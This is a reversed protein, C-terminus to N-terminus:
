LLFKTFDWSLAGSGQVYFSSSIFYFTMKRPRDNMLTLPTHSKYTYIVYYKSSFRPCSLKTHFNMTKLSIVGCMFRSITWVVSM